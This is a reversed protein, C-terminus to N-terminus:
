TSLARRVIEGTLKDEILFADHGTISHVTELPKHTHFALERQLRIPYLRDGELGVITLVATISSMAQKVSGRGRGVDHHNM